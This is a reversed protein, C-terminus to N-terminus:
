AGHEHLFAGVIEYYHLSVLHFSTLGQSGGRLHILSPDMRYFYELTDLFKARAITTVQSHLIANRVYYVMNISLPSSVLSEDSALIHFVNLGTSTVILRRKPTLEMLFRM